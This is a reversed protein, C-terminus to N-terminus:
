RDKCSMPKVFLCYGKIYRLVPDTITCEVQALIYPKNDKILRDEYYEIDLMSMPGCFLTNNTMPLKGTKEIIVVNRFNM